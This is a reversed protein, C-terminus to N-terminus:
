QKQSQLLGYDYVHVCVPIYLIYVCQTCKGQKKMLKPIHEKTITKSECNSWILIRRNHLKKTLM